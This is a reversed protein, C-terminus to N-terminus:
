NSEHYKWFSHPYDEWSKVIGAKVPNNLIYSLTNDFEKEDRIVRDYSERRWFKGKRELFKNAKVAIPGKIRKMITELPVHNAQDRTETIEDEELQISTDILIHVHNSMISYAVLDYFVGDFRHLQEKVLNAIEQKKLYTPGTAIRHILDDSPEYKRLLSKAYSDYLRFTVFFVAGKPQYHPLERRYFPKFKGNTM